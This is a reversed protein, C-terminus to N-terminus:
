ERGSKVSGDLGRELVDAFERLAKPINARECTSVYNGVTGVEGDKDMYM